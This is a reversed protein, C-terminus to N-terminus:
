SFLIIGSINIKNKDLKEKLSLIENQKIFELSTIIFINEYNCIESINRSIKYGKEEFSTKYIDKIKSIKEPPIKSPVLFGIKGELNFIFKKFFLLINENCIEKNDLPLECIVFSQILYELDNLTFIKNSKKELIFSSLIGAFLGFTISFFFKGSRTIGITYPLLTPSTILEWPDEAKAEDLELLSLQNELEILTTEVREAERILEKYRLLVGKPRMASKMISDQSLREAKLYGIARDKLIKILQDREELKERIVIDNENYFSKSREIEYNLTEISDPLGEEVLGPITSGIYQIDKYETLEEIKEIQYDIRRIENAAKVRVTEIAINSPTISPGSPFTNLKNLDSENSALIPQNFGDLNLDQDLAFNQVVKISDLSRKKFLSIQDKLYTKTLKYNEKKKENTYDKFKNSIKDLVPLILEKETDRYEVDLVFSQKPVNFILSNRWSSFRYNKLKKYSKVYEFIDILVSPSKLIEVQTEIGKRNRLGVLFQNYGLNSFPNPEEKENIVIQFNGGYIKKHTISLFTGISIGILTFIAILKKNRALISFLGLLNIQDRLKNLDDKSNM